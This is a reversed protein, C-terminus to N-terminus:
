VALPANASNKHEVTVFVLETDGINALDHIMFEGPGFKFHRTTGAKYETESVTGDHKYSRSKGATVASWFYNLVHMHFGIREGPKLSLQWVRLDDTESVLTSGVRGNLWAGSFEDKLGQPWDFQEPSVQQMM